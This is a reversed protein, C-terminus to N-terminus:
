TIDQFQLDYLRKYQGGRQILEEHTGYEVLQGSDILAVHHANRITSLRHAIVISTRGKTVETTAH